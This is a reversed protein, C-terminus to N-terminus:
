IKKKPLCLLGIVYFINTLITLLSNIIWTYKRVHIKDDILFNGTCFIVISVSFYIFVAAAFWFKPNKFLLTETESAIYFLAIGSASVLLINDLAISVDDFEKLPNIFAFRTIGTAIVLCLLVSLIKRLTKSSTWQLLILSLILCQV